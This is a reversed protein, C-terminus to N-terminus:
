WVTVDPRRRQGGFVRRAGLWQPLVAGTEDTVRWPERVRAREEASDFDDDAFPVSEPPPTDTGAVLSRARDPVPDLALTDVADLLAPFWRGRPVFFSLDEAIKALRRPWAYVTEVLDRYAAVFEDTAARQPRVTLTYGSFDRLLASPMLAGDHRAALRRFYPTGPIPSEFCVFTPVRLGCDDLHRPVDALDDVGDTLPSVM